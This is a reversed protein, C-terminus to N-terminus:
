SEKRQKQVAKVLYKWKIYKSVCFWEQNENNIDIQMQNRSFVGLYTLIGACVWCGICIEGDWGENGSLQKSLMSM